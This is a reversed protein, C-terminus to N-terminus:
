AVLRQNSHAFDTWDCSKLIRCDKMKLAVRATEPVVDGSALEPFLAKIETRAEASIESLAYPSPYFSETALGETFMVEHQDFLVHFYEVNEASHDVHITQGNVLAKAPVLAEDTGLFMEVQWGDLLVRHQPSVWLDREPLQGGFTGKTIKIPRLSPDNRLENGGVKRSGVWRVPKAVGDHTMVLDGAELREVRKPGNVTQIQTGRAVCILLEINLTDTDSGDADTGTVFIVVTQDANTDFVADRDIAFTFAGTTANFSLSGFEGGSDVVFDYGESPEGPAGGFLPVEDFDGSVTTIGTGGLAVEFTWTDVNATGGGTAGTVEAINYGM